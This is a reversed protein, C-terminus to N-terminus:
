HPWFRLPITRISPNKPGRRARRLPRPGARSTAMAGNQSAARARTAVRSGAKAANARRVIRVRRVYIVSEHLEIESEGSGLSVETAISSSDVLLLARRCAEDQSDNLYGVVEEDSWKYPKALDLVDKRFQDVLQRLNM